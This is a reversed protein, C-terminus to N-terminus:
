GLGIGQKIKAYIGLMILGLAGTLGLVLFAKWITSGSESMFKNFNKYFKIAEELDETKISEFRCDLHRTENIRRVIHEIDADTVSRLRREGARQGSDNDHVM